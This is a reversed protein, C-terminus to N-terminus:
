VYPKTCKNRVCKELLVLTTFASLRLAQCSAYGTRWTAICTSGQPYSCAKMECPLKFFSASISQGPDPSSANKQASLCVSLLSLHIHGIVKVRVSAHLTVVSQCVSLSLSGRDNCIVIYTPITNMSVCSESLSQAKATYVLFTM